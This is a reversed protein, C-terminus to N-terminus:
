HTSGGDHPPAARRLRRRWYLAERLVIMIGGAFYLGVVIWVASPVSADGAAIRESYNPRSMAFTLALEGFCWGDAAFTGMLGPLLLGFPTPWSGAVVELTLQRARAYDGNARAAGIGFTSAVSGIGGIVPGSDVDAAQDSGYPAERFGVGFGDVWYHDIYSRYWRNALEPDLEGVFSLIGSNASGRAQEYIDGTRADVSFAPLGTATRVDRDLVQLLKRRLGDEQSGLVREIAVVAWLVDNPYCEGPYDDALHLTAALLEDRLSTAQDRLLANCRTEKTAAEFSSLGMLILMRYFVNERKLYDAGWKERVWAASVPHTLVLAGKDLARRLSPRLQIQGDRLLQEATILFFATGFVPWETAAVGQKPQSEPARTELYDDVWAEYRRTTTEFLEPLETPQGRSRLRPDAILSLVVLGPYFLFCAAFAVSLVSGVVAIAFRWRSRGDATQDIEM